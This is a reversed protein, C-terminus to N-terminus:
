PLTAVGGFDLYKRSKEDERHKLQVFHLKKNEREWASSPFAGKGALSLKAVMKM